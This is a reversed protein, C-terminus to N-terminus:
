PLWVVSRYAQKGWNTVDVDPVIATFGFLPSVFMYEPFLARFSATATSAKQTKSAPAAGAASLM